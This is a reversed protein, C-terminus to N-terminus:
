MPRSGDRRPPYLRRALSRFEALIATDRFRQLRAMEWESGVPNEALAVEQAGRPALEAFLAIRLAAHDEAKESAFVRPASLRAITDSSSM